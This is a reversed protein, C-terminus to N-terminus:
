QEEGKLINLLEDCENQNLAYYMTIDYDDHMHEKVNTEIYEIAKDIVYHLHHNRAQEQMYQSQLKDNREKLDKIVKDKNM